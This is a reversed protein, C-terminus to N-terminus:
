TESYQHGECIEGQAQTSTNESVEGTGSHMSSVDKVSIERAHTSSIDKM